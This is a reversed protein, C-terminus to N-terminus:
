AATVDWTLLADTLETGTLRAPHTRHYEAVIARRFAVLM